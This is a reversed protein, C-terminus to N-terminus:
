RLFHNWLVQKRQESMCEPEELDDPKRNSVVPPNSVVTCILTISIIKKVM